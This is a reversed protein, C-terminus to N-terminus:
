GYPNSAAASVPAGFFNDAVSSSQQQEATEDHNGELGLIKEAITRPVDGHDLARLM